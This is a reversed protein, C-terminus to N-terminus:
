FFFCKLLKLALGWFILQSTQVVIIQTMEKHVSKSHWNTTAFAWQPTSCLHRVSQSIRTTSLLPPCHRSTWLPCNNLSLLSHLCEAKCLLPTLGRTGPSHVGHLTKGDPFCVRLIWFSESWICLLLSFLAPLCLCPKETQSPNTQM